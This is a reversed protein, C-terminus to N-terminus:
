PCISWSSERFKSIHSFINWPVFNKSCNSWFLYFEVPAFTRSVKAGPSHFNWSFSLERQQSKAGPFSLPGSCFTQWKVSFMVSPDSCFTSPWLVAYLWLGRSPEEWGLLCHASVHWGNANLLNVVATCIYLLYVVNFMGVVDCLWKRFWQMTENFIVTM